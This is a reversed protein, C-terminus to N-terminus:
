DKKLHKMYFWFTSILLVLVSITIKNNFNSTELNWSLNKVEPKPMIVNIDDNIYQNLINLDNNQPNVITFEKLITQGNVKEGQEPIFETKELIVVGQPSIPEVIGERQHLFLLVTKGWQDLRYDISTTVGKNEAGPTSVIFEESEQNGKLYYHVKVKWHTVWSPMSQTKEEGVLGVIEGILIVDSKLILEETSLGAWSAVANNALVFTFLSLVILFFTIKRKRM